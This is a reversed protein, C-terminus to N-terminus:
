RSVRVKAIRLGELIEEYRALITEQVQLIEDMQEELRRLIVDEAAHSSTTKFKAQAEQTDDTESYAPPSVFALALGAVLVYGRMM